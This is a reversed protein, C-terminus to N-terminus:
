ICILKIAKRDLFNKEKKQNKILEFMKRINSPISVDVIEKRSKQKRALYQQAFSRSISSVGSFDIAIKRNKRTEIYDFFENATDRLALDQSIADKIKIALTQEIGSM